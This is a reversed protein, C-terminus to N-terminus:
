FYKQTFFIFIIAKNGKKSGMIISLEALSFSFLEHVHSGHVHDHQYTLINIIIIYKYVMKDKM